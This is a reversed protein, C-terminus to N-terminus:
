LHKYTADFIADLDDGPNIFEWSLPVNSLTLSEINKGETTLSISDSIACYKTIGNTSKFHLLAVIYSLQELGSPVTKGNNKYSAIFVERGSPTYDYRVLVHFAVGGENTQDVGISNLDIYISAGKQPYMTRLREAEYKAQYSLISREALRRARRASLGNMIGKEFELQYYEQPTLSYLPNPPIVVMQDQVFEWKPMNAASATSSVMVACLLVVLAIFKKM